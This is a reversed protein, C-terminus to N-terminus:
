RKNPIKIVLAADNKLLSVSLLGFFGIYKQEHDHQM